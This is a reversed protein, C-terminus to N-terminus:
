ALDIVIVRSGPREDRPEDSESRPARRDERPEPVPAHLPEPEWPIRSRTVDHLGRKMRRAYCVEVPIKWSEGIVTGM